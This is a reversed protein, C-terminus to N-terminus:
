TMGRQSETVAWGGELLSLSSLGEEWSSAQKEPCQVEAYLKWKMRPWGEKASLLLVSVRQFLARLGEEWSSARKEPRQVEVNMTWKLRRWEEKPNLLLESMSRYIAWFKREQFIMNTLAQQKNINECQGAQARKPKSSM